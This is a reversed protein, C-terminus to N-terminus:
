CRSDLIMVVIPHVAASRGECCPRITMMVPALLPMPSGVARASASAPAWTTSATRSAPWPRPPQRPGNGAITLNASKIKGVESSGRRRPSM